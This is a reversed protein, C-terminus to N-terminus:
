RKHRKGKASKKHSLDDIANKVEASTYDRDDATLIPKKSQVRTRKHYDTDDLQEDKPILYDTMVKVTENLGSTLSGDPKQLATLKQSSKTKNSALRYVANCPNTCPTL